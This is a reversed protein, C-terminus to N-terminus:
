VYEALSEFDFEVYPMDREIRAKRGEMFKACWANDIHGVDFSRHIVAYLEIERLKLFHPIEKLGIPDLRSERRYGRLFHPMFQRTVEVAEARNTIMYFLVIAIDNAYWSYACDDFDFLTICGADDVLFNGGHADQHVLGYTEISRPLARLTTLLERYKQRVITDNAPLFREVDMLEADDWHPRQWTPDAPQYRRSLAHMRGILQGYTEYLAPSWGSEWPSQGQAKVFATALFQRGHGDDIAEVLRGQASLIARAVSAGGTALYNIWDVEAQILM